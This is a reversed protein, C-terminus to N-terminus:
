SCYEGRNSTASILPGVVEVPRCFGGSSREVAESAGCIINVRDDNTFARETSSGDVKPERELGVGFLEDKSALPWCNASRVACSIVRCANRERGTDLRAKEQVRRAILNRCFCEGTHSM